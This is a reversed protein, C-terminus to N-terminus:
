TRGHQRIAVGDLRVRLIPLRGEPGVDALPVCARVWATDSSMGGSIREGRCWAPHGGVVSTEGPFSPSSHLDRKCRIVPYPISASNRLFQAEVPQKRPVEGAQFCSERNSYRLARLTGVGHVVGVKASGLGPCRLTHYRANTGSKLRTDHKRNSSSRSSPVFGLPSLRLGSAKHEAWTATSRDWGHRRKYTHASPEKWRSPAASFRLTCM